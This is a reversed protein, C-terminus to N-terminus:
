AFTYPFSCALELRLMFDNNKIVAKGYFKFGITRRQALPDTNTPGEPSVLFRPKYFGCWAMANEGVIFVPHVASADDAAGTANINAPATTTSTTIADLHLTENTYGVGVLKLDTDGFPTIGAYVDYYYNADFAFDLRTNSGGPTITHAISINEPFGRLKSRRVIKYGYATASTLSGGTTATLTVGTMSNPAAGTGSATTKNGFLTFVPIFNTEIWLCGAWKGIAGVTVGTGKQNYVNNQIFTGFNVNPRLIDQKVEPGCIAIYTMEKNYNDSDDEKSDERNVGMPSAGARSLTVNVKGIVDNNMIMSNIIAPRSAVSGDFYQITTGALMVLTIERDLVRAANDALLKRAEQLLPHKTTLQVVDTLILYDGWQDLQVTVEDLDIMSADPTVGETLSEVPVNMRKYRVMYATDGAGERMPLNDCVANMVLKNFSRELLKAVLYKEQDKSTISKSVPTTVAM